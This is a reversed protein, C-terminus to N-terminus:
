ERTGVALGSVMPSCGGGQRSYLVTIVRYGTVVSYSDYGCLGTAMPGGATDNETVMKRLM